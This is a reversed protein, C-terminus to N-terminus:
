REPTCDALRPRAAQRGDRGELAEYVITSPSRAVQGRFSEAIVTAAYHRWRRRSRSPVEADPIRVKILREIENADMPM